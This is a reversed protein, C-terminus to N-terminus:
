AERETRPPILTADHKTEYRAVLEAHKAAREDGDYQETIAKHERLFEAFEMITQREDDTLTAGPRLCAIVGNPLQEM